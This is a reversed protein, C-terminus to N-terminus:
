PYTTLSIRNTTLVAGKRFVICPGTSDCFFAAGSITVAPPQANTPVVVGNTAIITNTFTGTGSWVTASYVGNFPVTPRGVDYGLAASPVLHSQVFCFGGGNWYRFNVTGLGTAGVTLTGSLSANGNTFVVYNAGNTVYLGANANTQAIVIGNSIILQSLTAMYQTVIMGGYPGNTAYTAGTASKATSASTATVNSLGTGDGYAISGSAMIIPGTNSITNGSFDVV